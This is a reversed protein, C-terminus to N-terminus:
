GGQGAFCGVSSPLPACRAEGEGVRGLFGAPFVIRFDTAGREVEGFGMEEDGKEADILRHKLKV